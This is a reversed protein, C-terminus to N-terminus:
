CCHTKLKGTDNKLGKLHALENRLRCKHHLAATVILECLM